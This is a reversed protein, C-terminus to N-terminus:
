NLDYLTLLGYGRCGINLIITLPINKLTVCKITGRFKNIELSKM